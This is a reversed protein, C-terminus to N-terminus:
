PPVTSFYMPSATMATKPTGWTWSSSATRATRAATSMRSPSSANFGSSSRSWLIVDAHRIPTFVPSTTAPIPSWFITVPSATFTAARRSCAAAGPSIKRPSRVDREHAIRDEGLRDRSRDLALRVEHRSVAEDLHRRARRPERSVEVGRHDSSAHARAGEGRTRAVADSWAHSSKVTRPTPPTPFDLSIAANM